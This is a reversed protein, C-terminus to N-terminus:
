VDDCFLLMKCPKFDGLIFEIVMDPTSNLELAACLHFLSCISSFGTRLRFSKFVQSKEWVKSQPGRFLKLYNKKSNM